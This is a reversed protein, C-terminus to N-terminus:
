LWRGFLRHPKKEEVCVQALKMQGAYWEKSYIGTYEPYTEKGYMSRRNDSSIREYNRQNREIFWKEGLWRYHLLRLPDTGDDRVVEIPGSMKAAHKGPEWEVDLFPSFIAVKAYDPAPVGLQIEHYIQGKGKPPEKAIMGFGITMPANIGVKHLKILRETLKPHYLIEDVDTWIVWDALGRAERYRDQAFRIFTIDDLNGQGFYNRVEAGEKEALAATEDTSDQDVYVIVRDCFTKYHRVWYPILVSENLALCYAWASM